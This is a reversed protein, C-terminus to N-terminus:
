FDNLIGALDEFRDITADADLEAVPRRCYGYSVLVMPVGAARATALDVESDGVMLANDLTGGVRAIATQLTAPDPKRVPLSDGGIVTGFFEALGMAQLLVNSAAVPKNTCVALPHGARAFAALAEKVGPYPQTLVAANAEYDASIRTVFDGLGGAPVGGTANLAREVLKGIGDGVMRTTEPIALTRRGDARLLRNLSATLDALSDVLTGDLDFVIARPGRENTRSDM